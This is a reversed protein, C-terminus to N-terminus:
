RSVLASRPKQLSRGPVLGRWDDHGEWHAFCYFKACSRCFGADDYLGALDVREPTFPPSLAERLATARDEGIVDGSGNGGCLGEYIFRVGADEHRLRVIASPAGCICCAPSLDEDSM